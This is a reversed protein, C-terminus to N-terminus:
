GTADLDGLQQLKQIREVVTRLRRLSVTCSRGIPRDAAFEASDMAAAYLDEFAQGLEERLADSTM